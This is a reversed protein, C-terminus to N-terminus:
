SGACLSCISSGSDVPYAVNEINSAPAADQLGNFLPAAQARNVYLASGATLSVASVMALIFTRM